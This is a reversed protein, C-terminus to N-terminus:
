SYLDADGTADGNALNRNRRGRKVSRYGETLNVSYMEILFYALVHIVFIYNLSIIIALSQM